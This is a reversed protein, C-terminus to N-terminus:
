FLLCKNETPSHARGTPLGGFCRKPVRPMEHFVMQFGQNLGVMIGEPCCNPQFDSILTDGVNTRKSPGSPSGTEHGEELKPHHSCTSPAGQSTSLMVGIEVEM